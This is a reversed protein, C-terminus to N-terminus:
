RLSSNFSFRSFRRLSSFSFCFLVAVVLAGFAGDEEVFVAAEIVVVLVVAFAAEDELEEDECIKAFKPAIRKPFRM